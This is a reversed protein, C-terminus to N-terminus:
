PTTSIASQAPSDAPRRGALHIGGALLALGSLLALWNSAAAYRPEWRPAFTSKFQHLGRAKQSFPKLKRGLLGGLGFSEAPVAALSFRPVYLARAALIAEHVILYLTGDPTGEGFRMLDLVWEQATAHFTAFALMRGSADHAAFIRQKRAYDKNWRGTTLGREGGHRRAWDQALADMEALAVPPLVRAPLETVTVGAKAAHRLKRRLNAHKPGETTHAQPDIVAEASIRLVRYRAKRAALAQRQGIKYFLPNRQEHACFDFVPELSRWRARGAIVAPEGVLVRVGGVVTSTWLQGRRDRLLELEAQHSLQVEARDYPAFVTLGPTAGEAPAPEAPPLLMRSTLAWAAGILAPLAYSVARFALLGAILVEAEVGPLQLFLLSEFPGTGAPSGSLLGIALSLTFGALVQMVEQGHGQPLLAWFALALALFDVAVWFILALMTAASPLGLGRWRLTPWFARSAILALVAVM